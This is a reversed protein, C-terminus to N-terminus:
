RVQARSIVHILDEVAASDGRASCREVVPQATKARSDSRPVTPANPERLGARVAPDTAAMPWRHIAGFFPEANWAPPSSAARRTPM